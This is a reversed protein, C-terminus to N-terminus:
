SAPIGPYHAAMRTWTLGFRWAREANSAVVEAKARRAKQLADAQIMKRCSGLYFKCLKGLMRGMLKNETREPTEARWCSLTGPM